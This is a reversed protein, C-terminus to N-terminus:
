SECTRRSGFGARALVKQLREGEDHVASGATSAPRADVSADASAEPDEDAARRRSTSSRAPRARAGRGGGRRARLRGLPPLEDLSDLGLRELFSRRRALVALTAPRPNTGSEGRHLRARVLTKLTAEVNVGRIASIQARSIPQKYAVIALTELAPGSLAAHQGDLM